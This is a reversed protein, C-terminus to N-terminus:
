FPRYRSFEVHFWVGELREFSDSSLSLHTYVILELFLIMVRGTQICFGMEHEHAHQKKREVLMMM